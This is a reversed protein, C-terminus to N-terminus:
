IKEGNSLINGAHEEGNKCDCAKIDTVFHNLELCRPCPIYSPVIKDIAGVDNYVYYRKQRILSNYRENELETMWIKRTLYFVICCTPFGSHVGCEFSKPLQRLRRLIDEHSLKTNVSM